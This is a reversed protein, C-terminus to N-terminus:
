RSRGHQWGAPLSPSVTIGRVHKWRARVWTAAWAAALAIAVYVIGPPNSAQLFIAAIAVAAIASLTQIFM